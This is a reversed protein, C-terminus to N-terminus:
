IQKFVTSIIQEDITTLQSSLESLTIPTLWSTQPISTTDRLFWKSSKLNICPVKRWSNFLRTKCPSKIISTTTLNHKCKTNLNDLRPWSIKMRQQSRSTKVTRPLLISNASIPGLTSNIVWQTWQGFELTSEEESCTCRIFKRTWLNGTCLSLYGLSATQPMFYPYRSNGTGCSHTSSSFTGHFLCWQWKLATHISSISPVTSSM